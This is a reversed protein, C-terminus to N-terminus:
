VRDPFCEALFWRYGEPTCCVCGPERWGEIALRADAGELAGALEEYSEIMFAFNQRRELTTDEPLM